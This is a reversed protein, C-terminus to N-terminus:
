LMSIVLMGIGTIPSSSPVFDPPPSGQGSQLHCYEDESDSFDM